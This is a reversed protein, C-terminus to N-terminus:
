TLTAIFRFLHAWSTPIMHFRPGTFDRSSYLIKRLVGIRRVCRVDKLNIDLSPLM